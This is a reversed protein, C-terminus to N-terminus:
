LAENSFNKVHKQFIDLVDDASFTSDQAVQLTHELVRQSELSLYM